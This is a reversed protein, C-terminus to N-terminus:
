SVRVYLGQYASTENACPDYNRGRNGSMSRWTGSVATTTV